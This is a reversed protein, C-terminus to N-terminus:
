CCVPGCVCTQLTAVVVLLATENSPSNGGGAEPGPEQFHQGQNKIRLDPNRGKIGTSDRSVTGDRHQSNLKLWWLIIISKGNEWNRSQNKEPNAFVCLFKAALVLFSNRCSFKSQLLRLPNSLLAPNSRGKPPLSLFM